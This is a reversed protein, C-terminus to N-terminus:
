DILTEKLIISEKIKIDQYDTKNFFIANYIAECSKFGLNFPNQYIVSDISDNLLYDKINENMDNSIIKFDYKKLDKNLIYEAVYEARYIPFIGSIGENLYKDLFKFFDAKELSALKEPSEVVINKYNKLCTLFGDLRTSGLKYGENFDLLLIKGKKGIFKALLEAAVRGLKEYDPAIHFLATEESDVMDFTGAFINKSKCSTILHKTTEDHINSFLVGKLNKSNLVKEIQSKQLAIRNELNFDAEIININVQFKKNNTNKEFNKFGKIVEETYNQVLSNFIFVEVIAPNKLALFKASSDETYGMEAAKDLIMKKTSATIKGNNFARSVTANSINLAKAIDRQTVM